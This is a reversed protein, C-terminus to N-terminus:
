SELLVSYYFLVSIVMLCCSVETAVNEVSAKDNIIRCPQAVAGGGLASAAGAGAAGAHFCPMPASIALEFNAGIGPFIVTVAALSIGISLSFSGGPKL